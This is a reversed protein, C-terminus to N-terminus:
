VINRPISLICTDHGPCSVQVELCNLAMPFFLCPYYQLNCFFLSVYFDIDSGQGSGPEPLFYNDFIM